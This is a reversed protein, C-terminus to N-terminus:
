IKKVIIETKIGGNLMAEKLQQIREESVNEYVYISARYNIGVTKLWNEVYKSVDNIPISESLVNQIENPYLFLLCLPLSPKKYESVETIKIGLESYVDMVSKVQEKTVGDAYQISVTLADKYIELDKEANKRLEELDPGDKDPKLLVSISKFGVNSKVGAVQVNNKYLLYEIDKQEVRSIDEYSVFARYYGKSRRGKNFKDLEENWYKLNEEFEKFANFKHNEVIVIGNGKFRIKFPDPKSPKRDFPLWVNPTPSKPFEYFFWVPILKM